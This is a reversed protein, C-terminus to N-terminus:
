NIGIYLNRFNRNKSDTSLENFTGKLCERKKNRFQRGTESRATNVNHACNPNSGAVM